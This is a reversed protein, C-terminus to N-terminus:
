TSKERKSLAEQPAKELVVTRTPFPIEIGEKALRALILKRLESQVLFQDSFQRLQVGLTFDLSSDGFGPNFTVSPAPDALLGEIGQEIAQHATELLITEVRLPDTGYAVSVKLGFGMRPHPTSFNTIIAKSMTSNPIVVNNNGLTRLLTSRWGIKQVVGEVGSELRIYDGASVPRDVLLYLGAFFNSLTEQLALAVAVSGVGLTTWVGTLSIGLNDLLVIGTLLAFLIRVFFAAPQTVREM